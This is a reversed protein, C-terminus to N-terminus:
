LIDGLQENLQKKMEDPIQGLADAWKLLVKGNEPQNLLQENMCWMGASFALGGITEQDHVKGLKKFALLQSVFATAADKDAVMSGQAAVAKEHLGDANKPDMAVALEFEKAEAVGSALLSAVAEKKLGAENKPDLEYAKRAVGAIVDVGPAGDEAEALLGIAKRVVAVKDKAEAYEGEIEKAAALMKKGSVALQTMHEVYAEAGGAQYGTRGFVEGEVNMLLITPYGRIGYKDRLEANRAPNPVKAKAEEGNPFDLAVLVYSESAQKYWADHQFGEDHLRICWGCWDSGTFDVLLDKGEEQAVALAKDYDAFWRHDSEQALALPSAALSIAAISLISRIM